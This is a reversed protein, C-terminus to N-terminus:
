NKAMGARYAFVCLRDKLAPETAASRTSRVMKDRESSHGRSRTAAPGLLDGDTLVRLRCPHKTLTM